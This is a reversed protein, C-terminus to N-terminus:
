CKETPLCCPASLIFAPNNFKKLAKKGMQTATEEISREAIDEVLICYDDKHINFLMIAIEGESKHGDIFEGSSTAGLIDIGEKHLIECVAKRDQKISIFVIAITPKYGDAMSQQLATNVEGTSSGKISKARM